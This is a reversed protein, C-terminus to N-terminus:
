DERKSAQIYSEMLSRIQRAEDTKLRKDLEALALTMYEQQYAYTVSVALDFLENINKKQCRIAPPLPVAEVLKYGLQSRAINEFTTLVSPILSELKSLVGPLSTQTVPIKRKSGTLRNTRGAVEGKSFYSFNSRQSKWNQIVESNTTVQVTYVQLGFEITTNTLPELGLADNLENAFARSRIRIDKTIVPTANTEGEGERAVKSEFLRRAKPIVGLSSQSKALAEVPVGMKQLELLVSELLAGQYEEIWNNLNCLAKYNADDLDEVFVSIKFGNINPEVVVLNGELRTSKRSRPLNAARPRFNRLGTELSGGDLKSINIQFSVAM